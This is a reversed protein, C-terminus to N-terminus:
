RKGEECQRARWNWYQRRFDTYQKYLIPNRSFSAGRVGLRHLTRAYEEHTTERIEVIPGSEKQLVHHLQVPLGGNGIPANGARM